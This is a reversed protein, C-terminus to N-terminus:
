PVNTVFVTWETLAWADANRYLRGKQSQRERLRERRKKAVHQPVRVAILRCPLHHHAGLDVSLDAVPEAQRSLLDALSCASGAAGYIMTGLQIRSLWYIGQADLEQFRDLSFFALDAIRLAGSPLPELTQEWAQDAVRGAYLFPGQLEGNLMNW